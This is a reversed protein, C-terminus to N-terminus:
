PIRPNNGNLLIRMKSSFYKDLRVFRSDNVEWTMDTSWLQVLLKEGDKELELKMEKSFVYVGKGLFIYMLM